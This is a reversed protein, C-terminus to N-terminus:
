DVFFSLFEPCTSRNKKEIKSCERKCPSEIQEPEIVSDDYFDDEFASLIAPM